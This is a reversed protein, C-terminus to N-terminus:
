GGGEVKEKLESPVERYEVLRRVRPSVVLEVEEVGRARYRPAEFAMIEMAEDMTSTYVTPGEQYKGDEYVKVIWQDWEDDRVLVMKVKKPTPRM